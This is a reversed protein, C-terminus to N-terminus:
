RTPQLGLPIEHYGTTDAIGSFSSVSNVVIDPNERIYKIGRSLEQWLRKGYIRLEPESVSRFTYLWVSFYGAHHYQKSKQFDKIVNLIDLIILHNKELEIIPDLYDVGWNKLSVNRMITAMLILHAIEEEDMGQISQIYQKLTNEQSKIIKNRFFVKISGFM